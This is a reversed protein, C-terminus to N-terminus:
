TNLPSRDAEQEAQRETDRRKQGQDFTEKPVHQDLDLDRLQDRTPFPREIQAM